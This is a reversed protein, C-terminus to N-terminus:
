KRGRIRNGGHSTRSSASGHLGGARFAKAKKIKREIEVFCNESKEMPYM